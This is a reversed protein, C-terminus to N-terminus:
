EIIYSLTCIDEELVVNFGNKKFFDITEPSTNTTRLFCYGEEIRNLFAYFLFNIEDQVEQPYDEDFVILKSKIKEDIMKKNIMM